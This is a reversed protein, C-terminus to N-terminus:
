RSPWHGIHSNYNVIWIPPDQVIDGVDLAEKLENAPGEGVVLGGM